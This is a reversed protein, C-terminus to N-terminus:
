NPRHNDGYCTHPADTGYPGYDTDAKQTHPERRGAGAHQYFTKHAEHEEPKAEARPFPLVSIPIRLGLANHGCMRTIRGKKSTNEMAPFANLIYVAFLLQRLCCTLASKKM